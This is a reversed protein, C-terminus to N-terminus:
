IPTLVRYGTHVGARNSCCGFVETGSVANYVVSGPWTIGEPHLRKHWRLVLTAFADGRGGQADMVLIEDAIQDTANQM